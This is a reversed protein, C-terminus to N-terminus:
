IVLVNQLQLQVTLLRLRLVHERLSWLNSKCIFNEFNLEFIWFYKFSQVFTTWIISIVSYNKKRSSFPRLSSCRGGGLFNQSKRQPRYQPYWFSSFFKKLIIGGGAMIKQFKIEQQWARLRWPTKKIFICIIQFLLITSCVPYFLTVYLASRSSKGLQPLQHM